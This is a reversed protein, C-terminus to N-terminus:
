HPLASREGSAVIIDFSSSTAGQKRMYIELEHAIDMEGVGVSIFNLIHEFAKDAISAAKKLIAIEEDTKVMRLTEIIGKTPILNAKFKEEFVKYTSFTVHDQEFGVNKIRLNEIQKALEDELTGKHEIITYNEAESKAQEVYRFDTIFLADNETIIVVGATGTFGSIYRRNIPNTIILGDLQLNNLEKRVQSLHQVM